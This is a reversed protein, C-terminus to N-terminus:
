AMLKKGCSIAFWVRCSTCAKVMIANCARLKGLGHAQQINSVEVKLKAM